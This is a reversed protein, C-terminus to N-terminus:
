RWSLALEQSRLSTNLLSGQHSLRYLTQRCRPLGPNPVQTPFIRQLLFCCGVRINKGPFDWRAARSGETGHLWGKVGKGENRMNGNSRLLSLFCVCINVSYPNERFKSSNTLIRLRTSECRQPTLVPNPILCCQAEKDQELIKQKKGRNTVTPIKKKSNVKKQCM